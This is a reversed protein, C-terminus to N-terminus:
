LALKSLAERDGPCEALVAQWLSEAESHDGREAALAALNRRTLHGFIGQDMSCFKNPRKLTLLRRWCSEAASSEGRHRHVVAKRFWLEANEPELELGRACTGLAAQSDGRMQHVRAIQAFLKRVISDTPASLALSRELHGLAAPWDKREVEIAGLNFLIFPDDPREQLEARLIRADRDLKRGRLAQDVYGTHRVVIDTWEVPIKFRNLAPLIQEHVRYTWRLGERIPFLRIHDVVTDGGTGDPSPDCACRVVYGADARNGLDALLSRVKGAEAPEVVDDADLWLAFDGTARALAANRAAAFDDVWPFDFVRAGFSRAIEITRDTSGTDVIVIEDFLGDVSTLCSPLNSEENKVIMTLSTKLQRRTRPAIDALPRARPLTAVTVAGNGNPASGVHVPSEGAREANRRSRGKRPPVAPVLPVRGPARPPVEPMPPREAFPRLAVRRGNTGPLGWKAAFRRANDDLLGEADIGNGAFTRSGFHHVFLDHAVALEFGARRAREALDDDDFLGLGFREDLGGIKEYVERKMLLCFGSLKPVTFWRGIHDDRWRQAFAHMEHMDRYPAEEVLQPPAAYNSMPGALSVSRADPPRDAAASTRAPHPHPECPPEGERFRMETLAVLQDLWADTVVVDNNLLVLYEGRAEHLGQNIAAPFGRNTENAIVTVPVPAADQLGALYEGTGDTSGNDILILEWSPRTHRLLARVCQRTFELQNWCPIIISAGNQIKPKPHQIPPGNSM